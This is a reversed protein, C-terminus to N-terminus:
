FRVTLSGGAGQPGLWPSLQARGDSPGEPATVIGVLAAGLGLLGAAGFGVFLGFDREERSRDSLFDYDAPCALREGGCRDDLESAAASQDVRFVVAVVTFAAGLGGVVWAWTPVAGADADARHQPPPLPPPPAPAPAVPPPAVAKKELAPVTVTQLDGDPGVTLTTSWDLHGPASASLTHEGPDVAAATGFTAAPVPDGDLEVRLDAPPTPVEIRLRSLKAEVGSALQAAKDANELRGETRALSAAEKYEAWASATMGVQEHCSALVILTGSKPEREHSARLKPCAQGFDGAKMMELAEQFLSEAVPDAAVAPSVLLSLTLALSAGLWSRSSARRLRPASSRADNSM